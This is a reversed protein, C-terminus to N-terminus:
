ICVGYTCSDDVAYVTYHKDVCTCVYLLINYGNALGACVIYMYMYMICTLIYLAYVCTCQIYVTDVNM